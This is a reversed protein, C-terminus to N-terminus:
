DNDEDSYGFTYKFKPMELLTGNRDKAKINEFYLLSTRDCKGLLQQMQYTLAPGVTKETYFIGKITFSMTFEVVASDLANGYQDIGILRYNVEDFVVKVLQGKKQIKIVGRNETVTDQAFVSITLTLIFLITFVNKM